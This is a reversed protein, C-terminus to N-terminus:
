GNQRMYLGIGLVVLIALIAIWWWALLWSILDFGGVIPRASVVITIKFGVIYSGTQQVITASGQIAYTGPKLGGTQFLVPMIGTEGPPVNVPLESYNYNLLVNSVVSFTVITLQSNLTVGTNDINLQVLQTYASNSPVKLQVNYIFPIGGVM